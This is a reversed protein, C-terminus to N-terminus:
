MIRHKFRGFAEGAFAVQPVKHSAAELFAVANLRFVLTACVLNTGDAISGGQGRQLGGVIRVLGVGFVGCHGGRELIHEVTYLHLHAHNLLGTEDIVKQYYAVKNLM